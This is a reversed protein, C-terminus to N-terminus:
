NLHFAIGATDAMSRAETGVMILVEAGTMCQVMTSIMFLATVEVMILIQGGTILQVRRGGMIVEEELVIMDTVGRVTM